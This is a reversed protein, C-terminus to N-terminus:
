RTEWNIGLLKYALRRIIGPKKNLTFKIDDINVHTSAEWNPPIMRVVTCGNSAVDYLKVNQGTNIYRACDTYDLDLPIQETLPWFFKIEQQGPIYNSQGRYKNMWDQDTDVM